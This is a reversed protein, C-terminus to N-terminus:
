IPQGAMRSALQHRRWAARADGSTSDMRLGVLEAEAGRDEWAWRRQEDEARHMGQEAPEIYYQAPVETGQRTASQTLAAEYCWNM